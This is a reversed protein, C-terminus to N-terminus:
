GLLQLQNDYFPSDQQSSNGYSFIEKTQIEKGFEVGTTYALGELLTYQM